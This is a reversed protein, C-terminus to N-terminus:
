KKVVDSLRIYSDALRNLLQEGTFFGAEQGRSHIDSILQEDKMVTDFANSLTTVVQEPVNKPAYWVNNLCSIVDYGLEMATPTDPLQSNREAGYYLLGKLKPNKAVPTAVLVTTKTHNGLISAIRKSGGGANVYGIKVGAEKSLMETTFFAASGILTAEKVGNPQAKAASIWDEASDIGSGDATVTLLCTNNTEAIPTFDQYNFKLKGNIENTMLTQHIYMLSYGDAKASHAKRIGVTAGGGPVNVVVMPQPLLKLEEIRNIILRAFVDGQGGAAFPIIVRIPKSPYDASLAAGSFAMLSISIASLVSKTM